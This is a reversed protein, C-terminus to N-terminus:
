ISHRNASRIGGIAGCLSGIALKCLRTITESGVNLAVGVVVVTLSVIVGCLTGSLIGRKQRRIASIYGSVYGGIALTLSNLGYLVKLPIDVLTSAVAWVSACVLMALLGVLSSLIINYRYDDWLSAKLKRRHAKM